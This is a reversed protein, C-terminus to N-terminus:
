ITGYELCLLFSLIVGLGQHLCQLSPDILQTLHSNLIIKNFIIIHHHHDSKAGSCSRWSGAAAAAPSWSSCSPPLQGAATWSGAASSSGATCSRSPSGRWPPRLYWSSVLCSLATCSNTKRQGHCKLLWLCYSAPELKLMAEGYLYILWLPSM